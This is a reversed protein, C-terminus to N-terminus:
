IGLGARRREVAADAIDLLAHVLVRLVLTAVIYVAVALIGTLRSVALLRMMESTANYAPQSLVLAVVYGVVSTAVALVALFNV